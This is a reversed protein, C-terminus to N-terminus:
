LEPQQPQMPAPKGGFGAVVQGTAIPTTGWSPAPSFSTTPASPASGFGGGGFSSPASQGVGPAPSNFGGSTGFGGSQPQGFTTPGASFGTTPTQIGGNNAGGLKEQTRGFAAIGLVAGMAIHFLGAGQLTLPTWQTIPSHTFTQLLSWLVPFIVMDMTCVLMYMWGMMPRWKSNMWDEKKTESASKVETSM